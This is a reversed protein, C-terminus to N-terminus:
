AQKPVLPRLSLSLSFSTPDQTVLFPISPANLLSELAHPPAHMPSRNARFPQLTFSVLIYSANNSDLHPANNDVQLEIEGWEEINL